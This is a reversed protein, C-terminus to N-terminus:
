NYWETVQYLIDDLVCDIFEESSALVIGRQRAKVIIVSRLYWSTVQQLKREFSGIHSKRRESFRNKKLRYTTQGTCVFFTVLIVLCFINNGRLVFSGFFTSLVSM